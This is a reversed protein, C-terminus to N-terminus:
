VSESSPEMVSYFFFGVVNMQLVPYETDLIIAGFCIRVSVM